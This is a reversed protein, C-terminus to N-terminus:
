ILLFIIKVHKRKFEHVFKKYHHEMLLVMVHQNIEPVDLFIWFVIMRLFKSRLYFVCVLISFTSIIEEKVIKTTASKEHIALQRRRDEDNKTSSYFSSTTTNAKSGTGNFLSTSFFTNSRNLDFQGTSTLQPFAENYDPVDDSDTKTSSALVMGITDALSKERLYNQDTATAM